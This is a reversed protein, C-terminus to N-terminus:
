SPTPGQALSVKPARDVNNKICCQNVSLNRDATLQAESVRLKLAATGLMKKSDHVLKMGSFTGM